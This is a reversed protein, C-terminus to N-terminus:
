RKKYLENFLLFIIFNLIKKFFSKLLSFHNRLQIKTNFGNIVLNFSLGATFMIKYFKESM